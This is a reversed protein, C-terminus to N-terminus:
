KFFSAKNIIKNGYKEKLKDVVKDINDDKIIKDTNEFLSIQNALKDNLKSVSLGILRIPELDWMENFLQKSTNFIVNFSNTSNSLSTQHSYTKFYKDKLIVTIVSAYLKKGRLNYAIYDSLIKLSNFAEMQTCINTKLTFSKSISKEKTDETLVPSNDIGKASNIMNTTQNKFYKYLRNYDANALDGITNIKLEKLKATSSKGIYLLENVDLPYMKTQIENDYLTHVMNPKQFDSAMKACLKSNGIGINVTFGLKEYIEDKLKYAFKIEDGYLKAVKTYDIFCEDISFQEIDPTYNKILNILKNSQEEYFEYNAPYVELNKCKLRAQYLTEATKIGYNKAVPSKALVIGHRATEDGGIVSPITRIDKKYGNNLLYVATWSLFANNVDIHMIIRM